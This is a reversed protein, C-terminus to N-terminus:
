VLLESVIRDAILRGSATLTLRNDRWAAEDIHGTKLYRSGVDIQDKSLRNMEIGSRM